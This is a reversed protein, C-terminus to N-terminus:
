VIANAGGPHQPCVCEAKPATLEEPFHLGSDNGLDCHTSTIRGTSPSLDELKCLCKGCNKEWLHPFYDSLDPDLTVVFLM